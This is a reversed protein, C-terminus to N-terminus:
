KNVRKTVEILGMTREDLSLVPPPKKFVFNDQNAEWYGGSLTYLYLQRTAWAAGSPAPVPTAEYKDAYITVGTAKIRLSFEAQDITPPKPGAPQDGGIFLRYACTGLGALVALMLIIVFVRWIKKM